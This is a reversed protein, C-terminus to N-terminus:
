IIVIICVRTILIGLERYHETFGKGHLKYDNRNFYCAALQLPHPTLSAILPIGLKAYGAKMFTEDWLASGIDWLIM